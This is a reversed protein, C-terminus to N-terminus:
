LKLDSEKAKWAVRVAQKGANDIYNRQLDLATLPSNFSSLSAFLSILTTLIVRILALVIGNSLWEGAQYFQRWLRPM